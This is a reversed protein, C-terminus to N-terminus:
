KISTTVIRLLNDLHEDSIKSRIKSKRHKMMSFLQECVYMRIFLTSMVHNHFSPYREGALYTKYFDLSSVHGFKEKLQINLQLEICEMQFNVPLTNIDVYFPTM